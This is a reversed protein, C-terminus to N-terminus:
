PLPVGKFVLERREGEHGFSFRFTVTDSERFKGSLTFLYVKSKPSSGKSPETPFVAARLCQYDLDMEAVGRARTTIIHGNTEISITGPLETGDATEAKFGLPEDKDTLKEIVTAVRMWPVANDGPPHGGGSILEQSDLFAIGKTVGLLSVRYDDNQQVSEFKAIESERPDEEANSLVAVGGVVVTIGILAVLRNM